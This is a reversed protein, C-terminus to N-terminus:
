TVSGPKPTSPAGSSGPAGSPAGSAGDPRDSTRVTGAKEAERLLAEYGALLAADDALPRRVFQVGMGPPYLPGMPSGYEKRWMNQADMAVLGEGFPPRFRLHVLTGVPPAVLTRVYLGTRNINYCYSWVMEPQGETWFGVSSGFLLRPSRRAEVGKAQLLDNVAFIINEPPGSRDFIAAPPYLRAVDQAGGLSQPNVLLLWPVDGGPQNSRLHSLAATAGDPPTDRDAIVARPHPPRRVQLGLEEENMAFSLDFGWRHLIRAILIRRQRDPHALVIRGAPARMGTWPDGRSLAVARDRIQHVASAVLYDDIGLRFARELDDCLPDRVVVLCPLNETREASRVLAMTEELRPFNADIAVGVAQERRAAESAAAPTDAALAEFGGLSLTNRAHDVWPANGPVLVLPPIREEM